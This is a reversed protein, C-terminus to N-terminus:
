QSQLEHLRSRRRDRSLSLRLGGELGVSYSSALNAKNDTHQAAGSYTFDFSLTSSQSVGFTTLIGIFGPGLEERMGLVASTRSATLKGSLDTLSLPGATSQVTLPGAASSTKVSFTEYRVGLVIPFLPLEYLLDGGMAMPQPLAPWGPADQNYRNNLDKPTPWMGYTGRIELGLRPMVSLASAELALCFLSLLILVKMM